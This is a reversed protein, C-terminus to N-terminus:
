GSCARKASSAKRNVTALHFATAIAPEAGLAAVMQFDVL